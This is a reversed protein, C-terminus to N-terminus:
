RFEGRFSNQSVTLSTFRGPGWVQRAEGLMQLLKVQSHWDLGIINGKTETSGINDGHSCFPTKDFCISTRHDLGWIFPSINSEHHNMLVLLM